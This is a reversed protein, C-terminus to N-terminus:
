QNSISRRNIPKLSLRDRMDFGVTGGGAGRMEGRRGVSITLAARV